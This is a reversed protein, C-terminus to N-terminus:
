GLRATARWAPSGRWLAHIELKPPAPKLPKAVLGRPLGDGLLLNVPAVGLGARVRLLISVSRMFPRVVGLCGCVPFADRFLHQRVKPGMGVWLGLRLEGM